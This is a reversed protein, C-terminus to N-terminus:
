AAGGDKTRKGALHKAALGKIREVVWRRALLVPVESGAAWRAIMPVAVDFDKALLDASGGRLDLKAESVLFTFAEPSDDYDDCRAIMRRLLVESRAETTTSENPSASTLTQSVPWAPFAELMDVLGAGDPLVRINWCSYEWRVGCACRARRMMSKTGVRVRLKGQCEGCKADVHRTVAKSKTAPVTEKVAAEVAPEGGRKIVLYEEATKVSVGACRALDEPGRPGIWDHSAMVVEMRESARPSDLRPHVVTPTAPRNM